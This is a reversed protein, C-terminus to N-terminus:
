RVEIKRGALDRGAAQAVREGPELGALVEYGDGTRRGVTIFRLNAVQNRDVIYVGQLQGRQILAASPVLLAERQGHAFRARGFLGSRIDPTTQLDIKVTFTRSAVDAAPVIQSVKGPVTKGNLADISVDVAEGLRVAGIQSEDVTAVLRFRSADEITLIPMGPSALSGADALKATVVGDFPARLKAYGYGSRAQAAAAQAASQGAKAGELRAEAGARRSKVEDFEQPSVSKREYLSQFRTLTADALKFDSEAAAIEKQSALEAATARDLAARPQADDITALVQGRRVLDGEHVAVSVITGMMQSALQSTEAARVTGVAEVYDPMTTRQVVVTSVDRVAEAPPPVQRKEAACGLGGALLALVMWLKVDFTKNNM